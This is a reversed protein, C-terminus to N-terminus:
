RILMMKNVAFHGGDQLSYFYLGSGVARGKADTGNWSITHLGAERAGHALTRVLQGAANHIRM